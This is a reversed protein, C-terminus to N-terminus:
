QISNRQTQPERTTEPNKATFDAQTVEAPKRYQEKQMLAKIMLAVAQRDNTDLKRFEKLIEWHALSMTNKGQSKHGEM